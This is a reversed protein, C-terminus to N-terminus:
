IHILSLSYEYHITIKDSSPNQPRTSSVKIATFIPHHHSIKNSIVGSQLSKDVVNTHINDICTRECHPMQHTPISITPVFGSNFIIEQFRDEAVSPNKLLNINFDGLIYSNTNMLNSLIKEYAENFQDISGSPPRYVVGLTVSDQFSTIKIFLTEIHDTCLSLSDLKSYNLSNKVYLCVGTGKPKVQKKMNCFFRNQYCSSYGHLQYLNGNEPDTNTEALGIISFKHKIASLETAFNDFNSSNGDINLFFTSILSQNSNIPNDSSNMEGISYSKCNELITSSASISEVYDVPEDDIIGNTAFHPAQFFPNYRVIDTNHVCTSCYTKDRFTTLNNSTRCKKHLISNCRYCVFFPHNTRIPKQCCCCVEHVTRSQALM